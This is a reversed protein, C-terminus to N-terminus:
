LQVSQPDPPGLRAGADPLPVNELTDLDVGAREIVERAVYIPVGSGLALAIADSSRADLEIRRGEDLLVVRGFFTNDELKEVRVSEVRAGLRELASDFLDHTLPRPYTRKSLRLEISLAETSGVFILLARKRGADTLVVASGHDTPAVGLVTMETYGAGPGRPQDAPAARRKPAPPALEPQDSVRSAAAGPKAQNARDSRSCGVTAAALLVMAILLHRM